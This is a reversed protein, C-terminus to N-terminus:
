HTVVSHPISESIKSSAYPPAPLEGLSAAAMVAGKLGFTNGDTMSCAVLKNTKEMRQQVMLFQWVCAQMKLHFEKTNIVTVEAKGKEYM